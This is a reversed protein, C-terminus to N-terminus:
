GPGEGTGDAGTEKLDAKRDLAAWLDEELRNVREGHSRLSDWLRVNSENLTIVGDVMGASRIETVGASLDNVAADLEALAAQFRRDVDRQHAVWPLLVRRVARRVLEPLPGYRGPASLSPEDLSAAVAQQVAPLLPRRPRGRPTDAFYRPTTAASRRAATAPADDGARRELVVFDQFGLSGRPIYARVDFFRSWHEIVYWPAHFTTHYGSPWPGGTHSDLNIFSIGANVVEDRIESPLGGAGQSGEEFDALAKEGHVSLVLHGGPRTVRRLEALWLDQHEEDLHTFVSHSYVLDFAGDAFELPPVPRNVALRAWPLHEQAWRVARADIDVGHVTSTGALHDMWQLVRGCGCGFDLIDSFSATRRGVAALAAEIDWVSQRGGRYFESRDTGGAVRIVLEDGPWALGKAAAAELAAAGAAARDDNHATAIDSGGRADPPAHVCRPGGAM